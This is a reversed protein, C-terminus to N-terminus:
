ITVACDFFLPIIERTEHRVEIWSGRAVLEQLGSVEGFLLVFLRVHVSPLFGIVDAM